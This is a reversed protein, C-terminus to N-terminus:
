SRGIETVPLLAEVIIKPRVHSPESDCRFSKPVVRIDLQPFLQKRMGHLLDCDRYEIDLARNRSLVVKQWTAPFRELDAATPLLQKRVRALLHDTADFSTVLELNAPTAEVPLALKVELRGHRAFSDSCNADVTMGQRAGLARLIAVVRRSLEDCSYYTTQSGYDLRVEYLRWIASVVPPAETASSRLPLMILAGLALVGTVIYRAQM